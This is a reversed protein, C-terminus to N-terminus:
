DSFQLKTKPVVLQHKGASRLPRAPVYENFFDNLINPGMNIVGRYVLKLTSKKRMDSLFDIELEDHLRVVPYELRTRKVAQLSANQIIQLKQKNSSTTGHYIFDCYSFIPSILTTYLYKALSEPIFNRMKWLLRNRQSVKKVINEIHADFSLHKDM